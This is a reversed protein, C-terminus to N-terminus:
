KVKFVCIIEENKEDNVIKQMISNTSIYQRAEAYTEFLTRENKVFDQNESNWVKENNLDNISIKVIYFM